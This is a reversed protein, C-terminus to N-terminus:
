IKVLEVPTSSGDGFYQDIKNLYFYSNYQELFIPKKFDLNILDTRTLRFYAKLMFPKNLVKNISQYNQGDLTGEKSNDNLGIDPMINPRSFALSPLSDLENFGLQRNYFSAYSIDTESGGAGYLTYDTYNSFSDINVSGHHLLIRPTVSEELGRVAYGGTAGAGGKVSDIYFTGTTSGKERITFVDDYLASSAGYITLETGVDYPVDTDVFTVLTRGGSVTISTIEYRATETQNTPIYPVYAFKPHGGVFANLSVKSVTPAFVSELLDKEPELIDSDIEIYGDGFGTDNDKRYLELYKDSSDGSFRLYNKQAYDQIVENYIFEQDESLDLKKSWNVAHIKNNSIDSFGFMEVTNSDGDTNLFVGNSVVVHKLLEIVKIDPLNAELEVVGDESIAGVSTISVQDNGLQNFVYSSTSDYTFDFSNASLNEYYIEIEDGESLELTVYVDLFQTYFPSGNVYVHVDFPASAVSAGQWNSEVQILYNGDQPVIYSDSALSWHNGEEKEYLLKITAFAGMTQNIGGARSALDTRVAESTKMVSYVCPLIMKRYVNDLSYSGSVKFGEELFARKLVTHVFTCVKFNGYKLSNVSRTDLNGYDIIPYTYGETNARSDLISTNNYGHDWESLDLEKISKEKFSEIWDSGTQFFQVEINGGRLTSSQITLYGKALRIEDDWISADNIKKIPNVTNVINVDTPFGLLKLNRYTAPLKVTPSKSTDRDAINAFSAIQFSIPYKEGNLLDLRNNSIRINIAM